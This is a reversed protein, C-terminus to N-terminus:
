KLGVELFVCTVFNRAERLLCFESPGSKTRTFFSFTDPRFCHFGSQKPQHCPMSILWITGSSPGWAPWGTGRTPLCNGTHVMSSPGSGTAIQFLNHTTDAHKM